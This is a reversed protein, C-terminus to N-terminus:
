DQGRFRFGPEAVLQMYTSLSNLQHTRSMSHRPTPDKFCPYQLAVEFEILSIYGPGEIQTPPQFYGYVHM